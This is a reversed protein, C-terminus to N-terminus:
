RLFVISVFARAFIYGFIGQLVTFCQIPSSNIKIPEILDNRLAIVSLCLIPMYVIHNM